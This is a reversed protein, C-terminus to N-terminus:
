NSNSRNRIMQWYSEVAKKHSNYNTSFTHGGTGNAVFYLYDTEDPHAAAKLSAKSPMAIPTPPLGSIVYTNYLNTKDRLDKTLIQGQYNDGMGYIITPDTQLLMRKKLRNIFVSAVKTRESDIGTEKEIISAMILLEYPSKYPLNNARNDWIEQLVVQMKQYARKVIDLDSSNITYTYTDPYLWGELPTDLELQQAIESYSLDALQHEIYPTDKLVDLWVKATKGEILTINFQAEKGSNLLELFQLLTMKAKLQYTGSKINNLSPMMKVSYPLLYSNKILSQQELQKALQNISTGRKLTFLNNESKFQIPQELFLNIYWYGAISVTCATIIFIILCYTAIKSKM